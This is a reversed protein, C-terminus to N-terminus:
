VPRRHQLRAAHHAHLSLSLGPAAQATGTCHHGHALREPGQGQLRHSPCVGWRGARALGWCAHRISRRTSVGAPGWPSDARQGSGSQCCWISGHWGWTHTGTCPRAAPCAAAPWRVQERWLRGQLAGALAPSSPPDEPAPRMRYLQAQARGQGRHAARILLRPAAVSVVAWHLVLPLVLRETRALPSDARM